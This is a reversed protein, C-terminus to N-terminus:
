DVLFFMQEGNSRYKQRIEIEDTFAVGVTFGLIELNQWAPLWGSGSSTCSWMITFSLM